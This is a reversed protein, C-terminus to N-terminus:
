LSRLLNKDCDDILNIMKREISQSLIVSTKLLIFRTHSIMQSETADAKELNKKTREIIDNSMERLLDDIMADYKRLDFSDIIVKM